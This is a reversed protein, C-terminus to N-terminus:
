LLKKILTENLQFLSSILPEEVKEVNKKLIESAESKQSLEYDDTKKSMIDEIMKRMNQKEIESLTAKTVFNKDKYYKSSKSYRKPCM